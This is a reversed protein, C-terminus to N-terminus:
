TLISKLKKETLISKGLHEYEPVLFHHEIKGTYVNCINCKVNYIKKTFRTWTNQSKIKLGFLMVYEILHDSHLM